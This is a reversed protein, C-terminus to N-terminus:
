ELVGKFFLGLLHESYQTQFDLDHMTKGLARKVAAETQIPHSLAGLFLIAILDSSKTVPIIGRDIAQQFFLRIKEFVPNTLTLLQRNIKKRDSQIERILIKVVHSEKRYVQMVAEVYQRLRREFDQQDLPSQLYQDILQAHDRAVDALCSIYLNEKCGFYYAIMAVNVKARRSIERMSTDDFGKEGFLSRAVLLIQKQGDVTM